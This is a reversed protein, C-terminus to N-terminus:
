FLCCFLVVMTVKLKDIFIFPLSIVLKQYLSNSVSQGNEFVQLDELLLEAILKFSDFFIYRFNNM